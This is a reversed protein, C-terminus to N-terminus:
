IGVRGLQGKKCSWIMESDGSSPQPSPRPVVSPVHCKDYLRECLNHVHSGNCRGLDYVITCWPTQCLDRVSIVQSELSIVASIVQIPGFAGVLEM